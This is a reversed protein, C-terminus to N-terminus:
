VQPERNRFHVLSWLSFLLFIFCSPTKLCYDLGEEQDWPGDMMGNRHSNPPLYPDKVIIHTCAEANHPMCIKVFIKLEIARELKSRRVETSKEMQCKKIVNWMVDEPM